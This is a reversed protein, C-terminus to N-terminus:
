ARRLLTRRDAPPSLTLGAKDLRSRVFADIPNAASSDQPLPPDQLPQFAWHARARDTKLNSDDLSKPWVAGDQIWRRLAAIQPATLKSKPPMKLDGAQEIAELLLSKEPHGVSIAPGSEGGKILADRSDLRLEGEQRDASHCKYCSELLVPRVEREFFEAAAPAAVEEAYMPLAQAFWCIACVAMLRWLLM